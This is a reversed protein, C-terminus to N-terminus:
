LGSERFQCSIGSLVLVLTPFNRTESIPSHEYNRKSYERISASNKQYSLLFRLSHKLVLKGLHYKSVDSVFCYFNGQYTITYYSQVNKTTGPLPQQGVGTM